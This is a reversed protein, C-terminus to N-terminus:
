LCYPTQDSILRQSQRTNLMNLGLQWVAGSVVSWILVLLLLSHAIKECSLLHARLGAATTRSAPLPENCLSCKMPRRKQTGSKPGTAVFYQRSVDAKRGGKTSGAVSEHPSVGNCLTCKYGRPQIRV